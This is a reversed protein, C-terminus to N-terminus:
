QLLIVTAIMFPVQSRHRAFEGLEHGAQSGECQIEESVYFGQGELMDLWSSPIEECIDDNFLGVM